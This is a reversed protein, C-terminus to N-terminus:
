GMLFSLKKATLVFLVFLMTPRAGHIFYLTYVVKVTERLPIMEDQAVDQNNYLVPIVDVDNRHYRHVLM